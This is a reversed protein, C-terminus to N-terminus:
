FRRKPFGLKRGPHCLQESSLQASVGSFYKRQSDNSVLLACIFGERITITISM